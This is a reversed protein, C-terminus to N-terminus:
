NRRIHLRMGSNSSLLHVKTLNRDRKSLKESLLPSHLRISPCSPSAILGDSWVSALARHLKTNRSPQHAYDYLGNISCEVFSVSCIVAGLVCAQRSDTEENALPSLSYALRPLDVASSLFFLDQQTRIWYEMDPTGEIV